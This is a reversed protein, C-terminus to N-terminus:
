ASVLFKSSLMIIKQLGGLQFLVIMVIKNSRYSKFKKIEELLKHNRLSWDITYKENHTHCGSCINDIFTIGLPHASSHLCKTCSSIM